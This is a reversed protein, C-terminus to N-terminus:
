GRLLQEQKQWRTVAFRLKEELLGPLVLLPCVTYWALATAENAAHALEKVLAANTVKEMVPALLRLKLKELEGEVAGRSPVALRPTIEFENETWRNALM